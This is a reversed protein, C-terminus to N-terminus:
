EKILSLIKKTQAQNNKNELMFLQGKKAKDLLDLYNQNLVSEIGKKVGIVDDSEFLNLYEYYESPLCPLKTCLFPTGSALYEMNKSPFSYKVMENTTDRPNVLFSANQIIEQIQNHTVVGFYKINQHTKITENLENEYDGSGYIHLEYDTDIDKFAKVLVDIGNLKDISGAYVFSKNRITNNNIPVVNCMGEIVKYPNNQKNLRHNMPETLFIFDSCHKLVMDTLHLYLKNTEILEPIDTVIGICQRNLSKCALAAGLSNTVSLIDCVCALTKDKKLDKRTQFYTRLLIFIDKVLSINLIPNYKFYSDNEVKLYLKNILEKTTPINSYCTVGVNNKILGEVVLRNFVQAQLGPKDNKYLNHLLNESILNSYYNINM